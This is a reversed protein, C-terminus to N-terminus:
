VLRKFEERTMSNRLISVRLFATSSPSVRM